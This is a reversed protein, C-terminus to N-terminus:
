GGGEPEFLISTATSVQEYGLRLYIGNSIPDSLDTYLFCFRYGRDLLNRTLGATVAAAFGSGRLEPPTYVYGVRAGNPTVGSIGAMSVARGNVEWLHIGNAALLRDVTSAAGASYIGTDREFGKMWRVLLDRDGERAPRMHGATERWPEVLNRLAYIGMRMQVRPRLVDGACWLSAFREAPATPGVVGPLSSFDRRAAECLAPLAGRPMGTLGIMHPSTRFAAGVVADEEELTAFWAPGSGTPDGERRSLAIGLILNHEAEHELLWPLTRDLFASASPHLVCKM